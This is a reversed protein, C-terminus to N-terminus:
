GGGLRAESCACSSARFACSGGVQLPDLKKCRLAVPQVHTVGIRPKSLPPQHRAEKSPLWETLQSSLAEGRPPEGGSQLGGPPLHSPCLAVSPPHIHAHLEPHLPLDHLMEVPSSCVAHEAGGTQKEAPHVPKYRKTFPVATHSQEKPQRPKSQERPGGGGSGGDGIGGDGEGGGDGGGAGNYPHKYPPSPGPAIALVLM